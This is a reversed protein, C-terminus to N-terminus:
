HCWISLVSMMRDDKSNVKLLNWRNIWLNKKDKHM